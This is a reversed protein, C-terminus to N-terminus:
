AAYITEATELIAKVCRGEAARRVQALEDRVVQERGAKLAGVQVVVDLEDAGDRIARRVEFAKVEPDHM